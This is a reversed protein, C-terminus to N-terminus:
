LYNFYPMGEEMKKKMEKRANDKGRSLTVCPSIRKAEEAIQQPTMSLEISKPSRLKEESSSESKPVPNKPTVMKSKGISKRPTKIQTVPSKAGSNVSSSSSYKQPSVDKVKSKSNNIRDPRSRLNREYQKVSEKKSNAKVKSKEKILVETKNKNEVKTATELTPKVIDKLIPNFKANKPAFSHPDNKSQKIEKPLKQKSVNNTNRSSQSRTVRGSTSPMAKAPPPPPAFKLANHPVGAIFPKKKQLMAEKKKKEKEEKWKELQMRRHEVKSQVEKIPTPSEASPINRIKDFVSLRLKKRKKIDTEM